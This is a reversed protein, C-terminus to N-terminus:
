FYLTTYRDKDHVSARPVCQFMRCKKTNRDAMKRAKKVKRLAYVASLQYYVNGLFAEARYIGALCSFTATCYWETYVYSVSEQM